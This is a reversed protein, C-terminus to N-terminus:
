KMQHLFAVMALWYEMYNPTEKWLTKSGHAGKASPIFQSVKDSKIDSILKTVDASEELSSTVFLYKNFGNISTKLSLKDGFHEGPSFAIVGRIKKNTTAMKMALTASYSSGLVIIKKKRSAYVYDVAAEIDQEADLKDMPKDEAEAAAATENVVGNVEKGCRADMAICNFGLKNIKPATELFEGRSYGKQHCLLIYPLTDSVLYLDATITLGDKSPFTIKTQGMINTLLFLSLAFTIVSKKM